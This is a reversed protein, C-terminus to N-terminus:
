VHKSPSLLRRWQNQNQGTSPIHGHIAPALFILSDFSISIVFLLIDDGGTESDLWNGVFCFSGGVWLACKLHNGGM